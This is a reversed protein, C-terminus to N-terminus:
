VIYTKTTECVLQLRFLFLFPCSSKVVCTLLYLTLILLCWSWWKHAFVCVHCWGNWKGVQKWVPNGRPFLNRSQPSPCSTRRIGCVGLAGGCGALGVHPPLLPQPVHPRPHPPANPTHPWLLVNHVCAYICVCTPVLIVSPSLQLIKLGTGYEVMKLLKLLLM